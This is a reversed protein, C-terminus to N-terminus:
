CRCAVKHLNSVSGQRNFSLPLKHGLTRSTKGLEDLEEEPPFKILNFAIDKRIETIRITNVSEAEM